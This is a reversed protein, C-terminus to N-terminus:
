NIGAPLSVFFSSGKGPESEVWIAGGHRGIIEKVIFLGLGLGPYTYGNTRGIRYFKEFIKEQEDMPMGVGFDQVYCVVNEGDPYVGVKIETSDPAYKVANSLLNSVVQSIRDRDAMILASATTQLVIQQHATKQFEDITEAVLAELQLPEMKYALYGDQLKTTDLLDNILKTLKNVQSDMKLYMQKKDAENGAPLVALLQTYGKLSTVPTKLEHSAISLFEDKQKMLHESLQQAEELERNTKLLFRNANELEATRQQIIKELADPSKLALAAPIIKYLGVVASCSVLATVFLVIASMRYVPYWFMLADFVHTFGCALIFFLFLWFISRFPLRNGTKRILYLLIVPISFYAIAIFINSGIYLWGHFPTWKGCHWRAPWSDPSFLKSFFEAIENMCFLNTYVLINSHQLDFRLKRAVIQWASLSNINLEFLPGPPM